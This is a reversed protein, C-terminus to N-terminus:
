NGDPYYINEALWQKAMRRLTPIPLVYDYSSMTGHSGGIGMDAIENGEEDEVYVRSGRQQFTYGSYHKVTPHVTFSGPINKAM